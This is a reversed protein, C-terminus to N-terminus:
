LTYRYAPHKDTIDRMEAKSLIKLPNVGYSVSYNRRTNERKMMLRQLIAYVNLTFLMMCYGAITAVALGVMILGRQQTRDALIAVAFTSIAGMVYAPSSLLQALMRAESTPERMFSQVGPQLYGPSSSIISIPEEPIPFGPMTTTGNAGPSFPDLLPFDGDKLAKALSMWARSLVSTSSIVPINVCLNLVMFLYVKPDKLAALVSDRTIQRNVKIKTDNRIRYIAISTERQDLWPASEPSKTLLFWAAVALAMTPLSQIIFVWQWGHLNLTGDLHGIGGSILGGFAGAVSSFTQLLAMRFTQESRKYFMAIYILVGPILAAETIGLFFRGVMLLPFVKIWAMLFTICGWTFMSAPLWVKPTLYLLAIISPIEALGYGVYFVAIAWSFQEQTAHLSNEFAFMRANTLNIRNLTSAGYFMGLIPIIRWDIKHVVRKEEELSYGFLGGPNSPDRRIFNNLGDGFVSATPTVPIGPGLTSLFNLKLAHDIGNVSARRSHSPSLRLFSSVRSQRPSLRAAEPSQPKSSRGRLYRGNDDDGVENCKGDGGDDQERQRHGNRHGDRRQNRGGERDVEGDEDEHDDNDDDNEDDGEDGNDREHFNSSESRLTTSSSGSGSTDYTPVLVQLHIASLSTM